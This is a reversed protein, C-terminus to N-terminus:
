EEAPSNSPSHDTVNTPQASGQNSVPSSQFMALDPPLQGQFNQIFFNMMVDFKKNQEDMQSKLVTVQNQLERYSSLSSSMGSYSRAPYGFVQSPCPGLGLGRVRGCHEKSGLVHALSDQTSIEQSLSRSSEYEQIKESIEKAEQSVFHGNAHKHTVTWVEGRSVKRGSELELEARKRAISKSGSTHPIIQKKRNDRNKQANEKTKSSLRYDVFSAWHDRNVGEPVIEILQDRNRTSDDRQQWLEQKYERWKSNLSKFIYSKYLDSDVEFKPLLELRNLLGASDGIPQGEDNWNLIIKENPPLCWVDNVTLQKTKRTGNEDVTDVLWARKRLTSQSPQVQSEIEGEEESDYQLEISPQASSQPVHTFSSQAHLQPTPVSPPQIHLQPASPPEINLQPATPPQTHFQQASNSRKNFVPKSHIRDHSTPSPQTDSQTTFPSITSTKPASPPMRSSQPASNTKTTSFVKM